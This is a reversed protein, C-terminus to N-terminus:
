KFVAVVLNTFLKDKFQISVNWICILNFLVCVLRLLILDNKNEIFNFANM